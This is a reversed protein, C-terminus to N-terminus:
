KRTKLSPRNILWIRKNDAIHAGGFAQWWAELHVTQLFIGNENTPFTATIIIKGNNSDDAFSKGEFAEIQQLHELSLLMQFFEQSIKQWDNELGYVTLIEDVEFYAELKPPHESQGFQKTPWLLIALKKGSVAAKQLERLVDESNSFIKIFSM